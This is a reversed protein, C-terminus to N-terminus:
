SHRRTVLVVVWIGVGIIVFPLVLALVHGAVQMLPVFISLVAFFGIVWLFM